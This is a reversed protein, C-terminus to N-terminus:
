MIFSQTPLQIECWILAEFHRWKLEKKIHSSIAGNHACVVMYVNLVSSLAYRKANVREKEIVCVCLFM